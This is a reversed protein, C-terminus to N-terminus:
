NSDHQKRQIYVHASIHLLHELVRGVLLLDHHEAGGEGLLDPGDALLEHIVYHRGEVAAVGM